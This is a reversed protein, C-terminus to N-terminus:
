EQADQIRDIAIANPSATVSMPVLLSLTEVFNEQDGLTFAGATFRKKGIEPNLIEIKTLSHRNMERVADNISSDNFRIRGDRWLLHASVDIKSVPKLARDVIVVKEGASLQISQGQQGANGTDVGSPTEVKVSGHLLAVSVERDSLAYVEFATGLATVTASDATHVVFPRDADHAVDVFIQGESLEVSRKAATFNVNLSTTSNLTVSTGDMLSITQRQGLATQYSAVSAMPDSRYMFVSVAVTAIVFAVSATVVALGRGSNILGRLREFATPSTVGSPDDDNTLLAAVDPSMDVHPLLTELLDADARNGDRKLWESFAKIDADSPEEDRALRVYWEGITLDHPAKKDNGM